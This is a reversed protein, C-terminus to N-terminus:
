KTKAVVLSFCSGKIGDSEVAHYSLKGGLNHTALTNAIFLGLGTGEEKTTFFPEFIRDANVPDIGGAYDTVDITISDDLSTIRIYIIKQADEHVQIAEKANSILNLLLQKLESPFSEIIFKQFNKVRINSCLVPEEGAIMCELVMEIGHAKLQPWYLHRIQEILEIVNVVTSPSASRFFNRFEDITNSMFQLQEMVESKSRKFYENDLEGYTYASSIDQMILGISNLPQRWQHSIAGIMEGLSALKSQQILMLEKKREEAEIRKMETLDRLTGIFFTEGALHMQTVAISVPVLAGSKTVAHLDREAGIIKRDYFGHNKVYDDHPEHHPPPVLININSGILEEKSYGFIKVVMSNVQVITAKEDIVIVADFTNDFLASYYAQAKILENKEIKMRKYNIYLMYLLPTSAAFISFLVVLGFLFLKANIRETLPLRLHHIVIYNKGFMEINMAVNNEDIWSKSDAKRKLEELTYSFYQSSTVFPEKYRSWALASNPHLLFYGDDDIIYFDSVISKLFFEIWISMYYNAVVIGELKGHRYVPMGIRLTPNYPIEIKGHEINLDFDSYGISGKKLAIFKKFYDREHKDQMDQQIKTIIQGHRNRDIRIEEMGRVNIFRLQMMNADAEVLARFLAEVDSRRATALYNELQDSTVVSNLMQKQNKEFLIVYDELIKHDLQFEYHAISRVDDRIIWIGSLLAIAAIFLGTFIWIYNSKTM